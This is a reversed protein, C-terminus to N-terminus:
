SIYVLDSHICDCKRRIVRVCLAFLLILRIHNDSEGNRFHNAGKTGIIACWIFLKRKTKENRITNNNEEIAQVSDSHTVTTQDFHCQNKNM